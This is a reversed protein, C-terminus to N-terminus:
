INLDELIKETLRTCIVLTLNQLTNQAKYNQSKHFTFLSTDSRGMKKVGTFLRKGESASIMCLAQQLTVKKGKVMTVCTDINVGIRRYLRRENIVSEHHQTLIM